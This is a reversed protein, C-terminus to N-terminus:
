IVLNAILKPFAWKSDYVRSWSGYVVWLVTCLTESTKETREADTWHHWSLTFSLLAINITLRLIQIKHSQIFIITPYQSTNQVHYLYFWTCYFVIFSILIVQVREELPKRKWRNFSWLAAQLDGSCFRASRRPRHNILSPRTRQHM